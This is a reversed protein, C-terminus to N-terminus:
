SKMSELKMLWQKYLHLSVKNNSSRLLFPVLYLKRRIDKQNCLVIIPDNSIYNSFDTGGLFPIDLCNDTTIFSFLKRNNSPIRYFEAKDNKHFLFKYETAFNPITLRQRNAFIRNDIDISNYASISISGNLEHFKIYFLWLKGKKIKTKLLDNINMTIKIKVNLSNSNM